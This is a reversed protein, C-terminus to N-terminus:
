LLDDIDSLAQSRVVESEYPTTGYDVAFVKELFGNVVIDGLKLSSVADVMVDIDHDSVDYREKLCERSITEEFSVVGLFRERLANLVVSSPENKLAEVRQRLLLEFRDVISLRNYEAKSLGLKLPSLEGDVVGLSRFIPGYVLWSRSARESYARKLFTAANFSFRRSCTLTWGFDKFGGIIAQDLSIGRCVRQYIGFAGSFDAIQNKLTTLTEGSYEFTTEPLLKVYESKCDPNRITTPKASIALLRVMDEEMGMQEALWMAVVSVPFGNSADCSSIDTEFLNFGVHTREVLFGDDSFYVFTVDNPSLKFLSSYLKDCARPEVCDAQVTRFTGGNPMLGFELPMCTLHKITSVCAQSTLSLEGATAYLRGAKGVKAFEFKFKSEFEGLGELVNNLCEDDLYWKLRLLLKPHPLNVFSQLWERRHVWHYVPAYLHRVVYDNAKGYSLLLFWVLARWIRQFFGVRDFLNKQLMAFFESHHDSFEYVNPAPKRATVRTVPRTTLDYKNSFPGQKTVTAGCLRAVLETAKMSQAGLLRYQNARLLSEDERAKLYRSLAACVNNANNAYTQFGHTCTFHAWATKNRATDNRPPCRTRFTPYTSVTGDEGVDFDFGNSGIIRWMRNYPYEPKISEDFLLQTVMGANLPIFLKRVTSLVDGPIAVSTNRFCYFVFHDHVIKRPFCPYLFEEFFRLSASYNRSENALVGLAITALQALQHSIVVTRVPFVQGFAVFEHIMTATTIDHIVDYGCDTTQVGDPGFQLPEVLPRKCSKKEPEYLINLFMRYEKREPAVEVVTTSAEAPDEELGFLFDEGYVMGPPNSAVVLPPHQYRCKSGFPCLGSVPDRKTCPKAFKPLEGSKAKHRTSSRHVNTSSENQRRVRDPHDLDDSCTWEGHTGSIQQCQRDKTRGTRFFGGCAGYLPLCTSSLAQWNPRTPGWQNSLRTSSYVPHKTYDLCACGLTDHALACTVLRGLVQEGHVSQLLGAHEVGLDWVKSNIALPLNSM